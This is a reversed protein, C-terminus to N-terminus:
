EVNGVTTYLKRKIYWNIYLMSHDIVEYLNMCLSKELMTENNKYM